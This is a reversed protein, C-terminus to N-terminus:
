GAHKGRDDSITKRTRRVSQPEGPEIVVEHFIAAKRLVSKLYSADDLSLKASM